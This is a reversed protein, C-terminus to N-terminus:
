EERQVGRCGEGPWGGEPGTSPVLTRQSQEFCPRGTEAWTRSAVSAVVVHCHSRHDHGLHIRGAEAVAAELASVAAAAKGSQSGLLLSLAATVRRECDLRCTWAVDTSEMDAPRLCPPQVATERSTDAVARPEAESAVLEVMRIRGDVALSNGRGSARARQARPRRSSSSSSLGHPKLMREM